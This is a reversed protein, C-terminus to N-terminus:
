TIPAELTIKTGYNPASIIKFRANINSARYKMNNLGNGGNSHLMDFGRGDDYIELLIAQDVRKLAVTLKKCRSYKAANNIAEKYILFFDKRTSLSMKTSAFEHDEIFEYQIELPELIEAAFEKMRIMIKELTDNEPNIAWVMDSMSEQMTNANQQISTLYNQTTVHDNKELAINSMIKISSLTSGIDDHLDRAVKSRITDEIFYRGIKASCIKAIETLMSLHWSRYFNKKSHESDIVAFVKGEAFIPVSIESYRREGDVIYRMDKSTDRVIEAKGSQAVSGVIGKGMEIELPNNIKNLGPYQTNVLAKQILTGNDQVFYVVCDEFDLLKISKRAVMWFVEDLTTLGYLSTAFDNLTKETKIKQTLTRYWFYLGGLFSIVVLSLFWSTKWFPPNITFSISAINSSVKGSHDVAKVHFIYEGNSLNTFHASHSNGANIWEEAYGNLQYYYTVQKPLSYTLASFNFTFANENYNFESGNFVLQDEQYVDTIVIPFDVSGPILQDPNFQLFGNATGILIEGSANITFPTSFSGYLLGNKKDYHNLINGNVDICTLGKNSALWINGNRDAQIAHITNEALGTKMSYTTFANEKHSYKSVGGSTTAVWVNGENDLTLGYTLSSQIHKTSSANVGHYIFKKSNGQYQFVGFSYDAIWIENHISDSLLASPRSAFLAKPDKEIFTWKKTQAEYFCVGYELSAFWFNGDTDEVMDMFQYDKGEGPPTFVSFKKRSQDSVFITHRTLIWLRHMWDEYVKACNLLRKGNIELLEKRTGTKKNLITLSGRTYSSIYYTSDEQHDLVHYVNGSTFQSTDPFVRIFPFIDTHPDHLGIGTQTGIWIIGQDNYLANVKSHHLTLPNAEKLPHVSAQKNLPNIVWLGSGSPILIPTSNKEPQLITTPDKKIKELTEKKLDYVYLNEQAFFLWNSLSDFQMSSFDQRLDGGHYKFKELAVDFSFLGLTTGLWIETESKQEIKQIAYYDDAQPTFLTTVFKRWPFYVFEDRQSDYFCLDRADLALWKRNTKDIHIDWIVSSAIKSKGPRSELDDPTFVFLSDNQPNLLNLGGWTGIWLKGNADEEVANIHEHSLSRKQQGPRYITFEHGDYRNLGNETGIWMFGTQDKM